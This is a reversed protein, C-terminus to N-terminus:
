GSINLSACTDQCLTAAAVHAAADEMRVALAAARLLPVLTSPPLGARKATEAMRAAREPAPLSLTLTEAAALALTARLAADSAATLVLRQRRVDTMAETGPMGPNVAAATRLGAATSALAEAERVLAASLAAAGNAWDEPGPGGMADELATEANEEM